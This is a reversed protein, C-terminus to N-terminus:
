IIKIKLYDFRGLKIIDNNGWKIPKDIDEIAVKRGNIAISGQRVLRKLETRSLPLKRM